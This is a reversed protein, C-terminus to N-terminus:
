HKADYGCTPCLCRDIRRQRVITRGRRFLYWGLRLPSVVIWTAVSLLIWWAAISFIWSVPHTRSEAPSELGSARAIPAAAAM